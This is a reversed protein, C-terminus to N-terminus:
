RTLDDWTTRSTEVQLSFAAGLHQLRAVRPDSEGVLTTLWAMVDEVDVRGRQLMAEIDVWDKARNVLTKLIVLDTASVVKFETGALEVLEAREHLRHHFTPHAPLFIDVPTGQDVSQGADPWRLRVQHDRRLAAVDDPEVIIGEPLAAILEDIRTPDAAINVDIDHTFRPEAHFALAIAGGVAHDFRASTLAQVLLELKHLLVSPRSM